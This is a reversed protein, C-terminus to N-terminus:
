AYNETDFHYSKQVIDLRQTVFHELIELNYVVLANFADSLLFQNQKKKRTNQCAFIRGDKLMGPISM